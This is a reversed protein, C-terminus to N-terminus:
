LRCGHCREGCWRHRGDGFLRLHPLRRTPLGAAEAAGNLHGDGLRRCEACLGAAGSIRGVRLHAFRGGPPAQHVRLLPGGSSRAGAEATPELAAGRHRVLLLVVLAAGGSALAPALRVAALALPAGAIPTEHNHEREEEELEREEQLPHQHARHRDLEPVLVVVLPGGQLVLREDLRVRGALVRDRHGPDRPRCRSAIQRADAEVACGRRAVVLHAEVDVHSQVGCPELVTGEGQQQGRVVPAIPPERRVPRVRRGVGVEWAAARLLGRHVAVHGLLARPRRLEVAVALAVGHRGRLHPRLLQVGGRGGVDHNADDPVALLHVPMVLVIGHCRLLQGRLAVRDAADAPPGAARIRVAPAQRAARSAQDVHLGVAHCAHPDWLGAERPGDRHARAGVLWARLLAGRRGREEGLPGAPLAHPLRGFGHAAGATLPVLQDIVVAQGAHLHQELIGGDVVRRGVGRGPSIDQGGRHVDVPRARRPHEVAGPRLQVIGDRVGLREGDADGLRLPRLLGLHAAVLRRGQRGGDVVNAPVLHVEELLVLEAELGGAAEPLAARQVEHRAGDVLAGVPVAELHNVPLGHRRRGEVIPADGDGASARVGAHVRILGQLM